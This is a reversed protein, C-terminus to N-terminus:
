CLFFLLRKVDEHGRFRPRERPVIRSRYLLVYFMAAGLCFVVAVVANAADADIVLNVVRIGAPSTTGGGAAIVPELGTGGTLFARCIPMKTAETPSPPRTTALIKRAVAMALGTKTGTGRRDFR